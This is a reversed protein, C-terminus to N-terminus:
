AAEAATAAWEDYALQDLVVRADDYGVVEPIEDSIALFMRVMALDEDTPEYEDVDAIAGTLHVPGDATIRALEDDTLAIAANVDLTALTADRDHGPILMTAM